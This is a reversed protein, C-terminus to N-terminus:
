EGDRSGDHEAVCRPCRDQWMSGDLEDSAEPLQVVRGCEVCAVTIFYPLTAVDM